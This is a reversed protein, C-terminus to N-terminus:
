VANLLAFFSQNRQLTAASLPAQQRLYGSMTELLVNHAVANALDAQAATYLCEEIGEPTHRVADGFREMLSNALTKPQDAPPCDARLHPLDKIFDLVSRASREIDGHHNVKTLVLRTTNAGDSCASYTGINAGVFQLLTLVKVASKSAHMLHHEALKMPQDDPDNGFPIAILSNDEQQTLIQSMRPHIMQITAALTMHQMLAARTDVCAAAADILRAFTEKKDAHSPVINEPHHVMSSLAFILNTRVLTIGARKRFLAKFDDEEHHVYVEPVLM